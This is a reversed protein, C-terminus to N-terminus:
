SGWGMSSYVQRAADEKAVKQSSGVGYGREVGNVSCRVTWTLQHDPGEKEAKYTLAVHKQAAIQNVLALSIPNNSGRDRPPGSPLPPPSGPPPAPAGFPPPFPEQKVVEPDILRSVWDQVVDLGARIYLAGVYTCFFRRTESPSNLDDASSPAVRIKRTLDYGTKWNLLTDESISSLDKKGIEEPSLMPKKSFWHRTMALDFVKAGLKELRQTNGYEENLVLDGGNQLSPHCWIDVVIDHDGPIPPFPPLSHSSM